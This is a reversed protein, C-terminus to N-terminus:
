NRYDRHCSACSNTIIAFQKNAGEVDKARLAKELAIGADESVKLYKLFIDGKGQAETDNRAMERNLEWLMRAEHPASIDPHAAMPKWANKQSLKLAEWRENVHVMGARLGKPLVKNPLETVAALDEESVGRFARVDRWLGTYNKSTGSRELGKIATANSIKDESIRCIMAAAPGRHKGHHCHVFIPHESIRAAKVIRAALPKNIGDYGIPVHVYRLGHKRAGEIDPVSGDVSLITRYGLAKLNQFAIDGEPQAGQGVNDSWAIYRDLGAPQGDQDYIVGGPQGAEGVQGADGQTSRDASRVPSCAALGIVLLAMVAFAFLSIITRDRM